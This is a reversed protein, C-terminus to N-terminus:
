NEEQGPYPRFGRAASMALAWRARPSIVSGESHLRRLSAEGEPGLRQLSGVAHQAELGRRTALESLFASAGERDAVSGLGGIIALRVVRAEARDYLRKARDVVGPMPQTSRKSGAGLLLTALAQQYGDSGVGELALKELGDFVDDRVGPPFSEPHVFLEIITVRGPVTYGETNSNAIQVIEEASTPRQAVVGGPMIGAVVAGIVLVKVFRMM